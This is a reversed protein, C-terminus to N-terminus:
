TYVGIGGIATIWFVFAGTTSAVPTVTLVDGVVTFTFSPHNAGAGATLGQQSIVSVVGSGGPQKTIHLFYSALNSGLTGPSNRAEIQLLGAYSTSVASSLESTLTALGEAATVTKTIAATGAIASKSGLRIGEALRSRISPFIGGTVVNLYNSVLTPSNSPQYISYHSILSMDDTGYYSPPNLMYEITNGFVNINTITANDLNAEVAIGHRTFRSLTNGTIVGNPESTGTLRIADCPQRQGPWAIHNNSINFHKAKDLLISELGAEFLNNNALTIWDSQGIKINHTKAAKLATDTSTYGVMFMVNGTIHAGDIGAIDIQCVRAINVQNNDFACDSTYQWSNADANHEVKLAYNVTNFDNNTIRVMAVNHFIQGADSRRLVGINLADFICNTITVRRGAILEIGNTAYATGVFKIHNIDCRIEGTVAAKNLILPGNKFTGGGTIQTDQISLTVGGPINFTADGPIWLVSDVPMANICAQVAATDNAIGDGVAGHDYPTYFGKTYNRVRAGLTNPAYPVAMGFGLTGAGKASDTYSAMSTTLVDVQVQAAASGATAGASGAALVAQEAAIRSADVETGTALTNIAFAEAADRANEAVTRVAEAAATLENNSVTLLDVATALSEYSM